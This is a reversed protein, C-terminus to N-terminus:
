CTFAYFHFLFLSVEEDEQRRKLKNREKSAKALRLTEIEDALAVKPGIPDGPVQYVSASSAAAVNSKKSKKIKGM